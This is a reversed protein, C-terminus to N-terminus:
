ILVPVLAVLATKNDGEGFYHRSFISFHTGSITGELWRPLESFPLVCTWEWDEGESGGQWDLPVVWDQRRRWDEALALAVPARDTDLGIPGM